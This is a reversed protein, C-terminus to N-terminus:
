MSPSGMRAPRGGVLDRAPRVDRRRQDLDRRLPVELEAGLHQDPALLQRRGVLDPGGHVGEAARDHHGHHRIDELDMHVGVGRLGDKAIRRPPSPDLGGLGVVHPGLVPPEGVRLAAGTATTVSLEASRASLTSSRCWM